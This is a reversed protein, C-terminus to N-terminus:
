LLRGGKLLGRAGDLDLVPGAAMAKNARQSLRALSEAASELLADHNDDLPTSGLVEIIKHVDSAEGINM